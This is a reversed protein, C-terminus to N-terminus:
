WAPAVDTRENWLQACSVPLNCGGDASAVVTAPPIDPTTDVMEHKGSSTIRVRSAHLLSYVPM